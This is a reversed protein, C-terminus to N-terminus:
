QQFPESAAAFFREGAERWTIRRNSRAQEKRRRRHDEDEIMRRIEAYWADVDHPDLCPAAEGVVEPISGGTSAIVPTGLLMSEVPPLGYGEYISPYLSFAANAYLAAIADDGLDPLHLLSRGFEPDAELDKFFEDMKWGRRGAFVLKFGTAAVVGDAVLRRWVAVLLRHNKRPEITSVFVAFNGPVLGGFLAGTGDSRPMDAGLPVIRTDALDCGLARCFTRADDQGSRSNFIVRDASPLAKRFYANVIAIDRAAFWEPFRLPISDFCLIVHRLGTRAKEAIIADIDTHFWDNQACVLVDGSGIELRRDLILDLPPCPRLSGDPNVYLSHERPKILRRIRAEIPPRAYPAAELYRRQLQSLRMRRFKTVWFWAKGLPRPLRSALWPRPDGPSWVISPEISAENEVIADIWESRIARFRGAFPDFVTFIVDPRTARAHRALQQQSRVIGVAPGHWRILSSLDFLIRAAM